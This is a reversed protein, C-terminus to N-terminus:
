LISARQSEQSPTLVVGTLESLSAVIFDSVDEPNSVCCDQVALLFGQIADLDPVSKAANIFEMWKDKDQGYSDVLYLAALYEALPDLAFRVKDRGPESIQIIRLRKELHHLRANVSDQNDLVAVVNDLKTSGPRFTKKLCEWAITKADKQLTRNDLEGEATERNLENIYGLMLDPISLPLDDVFDDSDVAVKAIMQEAYLKAFLATINRKGVMLSLRRCADFYEADDFLDRKGRQTLYAEMFSSLQNGSVRLPKLTTKPVNDLSEELRSTVILANAPFNPSAPRIQKRTSFSMESFHDIIVLIRRQRLLNEVLKTPIVESEGILVQLQGCIEQIFAQNGEGDIDLEQEILIPLMRHKSPRINIDDSMGWKALQCALSTKGSGGEAHILINTLKKDFCAKLDNGSFNAITKKDVVVPLSIHEARNSVTKKVSFNDRAVKINTAVWADLVRPHYTFPQLFIIGPISITWGGLAEPLQLNSLPQLKQNLKLLWLPRILLLSSWLLPFFILYIITAAFWPHKVMWEFIRSTLRSDKEKKLTTLDAKLSEQEDEFKEKIAELAKLATELTAIGTELEQHSLKEAQNRYDKGVYSLMEAANSRVISDTDKLTRIIEPVAPAATKGMRGLAINTTLRVGSEEDELAKILPKVAAKDKILGLAEAASSRVEKEEDKLAQILPKVAAKDAILGLAQAASSRVQSNKDELAEILSEVAAKDALSGLAQAASSRVQSNKDELAEILPEVAAKDAINGLAKAASSRVQSNKDRLVKILPQVSSAAEKGAIELAKAAYRRVQADKHSLAQNLAPIEKAVAKAQKQLIPKEIEKIQNLVLAARSRVQANEDQLVQILAPVAQYIKKYARYGGKAVKGLAYAASYRVTANEDKLAKSLATVISPSPNSKEIEGLSLAANSRVQKNEDQLAKILAPIVSKRDVSSLINAAGARVKANSSTLKEVVPDINQTTTNELNFKSLRYDEIENVNEGYKQLISDSIEEGWAKNINALSLGTSFIFIGFINFFINLKIKNM